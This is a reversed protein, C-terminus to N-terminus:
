NAGLLTRGLNTPYVVNKLRLAKSAEYYSKVSYSYRWASIKVQCCQTGSLFNGKLILFSFFNLFRIILKPTLGQIIIVRVFILFKLKYTKEPHDNHREWNTQYVWGKRLMNFSLKRMMNLIFRSVFDFSSDKSVGWCFGRFDSLGPELFAETGMVAWLNSWRIENDSTTRWDPWLCKCKEM